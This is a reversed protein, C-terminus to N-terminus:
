LPVAQAFGADLALAPDTVMRVERGCRRALDVLWEEKLASKVTPHLTLLLAGPERVAEGRRLAMRAAAGARFAAMRHLLSPRELRAVIQVFGFGNMATREHPWDSLAHQLAQDVARRDAKDQLTPFDIGVSGGLDFRRLADAIAPVAALALAPARLDGDVDILTMAPTVSFQLTGGTFDASASWAQAWVDAWWDDAFRHVIQVEHGADRLMQALSPAPRLPRDTPRAQARKTRGTETMAARTVELRIPAGEQTDRALRDVLAEEGSAYRAVGRASGASRSFLIADDVMAASLAGPWHLRAAYLQGAEIRIAREEGIGEEVFWTM